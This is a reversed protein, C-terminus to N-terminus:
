GGEAQLRFLAQEAAGRESRCSPTSGAVEGIERDLKFRWIHRAAVRSELKGPKARPNEAKWGQTRASPAKPM